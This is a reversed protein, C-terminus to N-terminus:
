RREPQREPGFMSGACDRAVDGGPHNIPFFGARVHVACVNVCNELDSRVEPIGVVRQCRRAFLLTFSRMSQSNPCVYLFSLEWGVGRFLSVLLGIAYRFQPESALKQTACGSRLIEFPNADILINDRNDGPTEWRTM